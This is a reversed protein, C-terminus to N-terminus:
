GNLEGSSQDVMNKKDNLKRQELSRGFYYGIIVGIIGTYVSAIKVFFNAYGDLSVNADSVLPYIAMFATIFMFTGIITLAIISRITNIKM